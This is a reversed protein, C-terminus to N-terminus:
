RKKRRQELHKCLLLLQQVVFDQDEKKLPQLHASIMQAASLPEKESEGILVEVGIGIANAFQELRKLSPDTTGREIRSVTEPEVGVKGALDEQTLRAEQRVKALNLGVRKTISTMNDDKASAIHEDSIAITEM